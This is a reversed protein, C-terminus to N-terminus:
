RRHRGQYGAGRGHEPDLRPAPSQIEERIAAVFAGIVGVIDFATLLLLPSM